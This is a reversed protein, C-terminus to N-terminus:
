YIYHFFLPYLLFLPTVNIKHKCRKKLRPWNSRQIHWFNFVLKDSQYLDTNIEHLLWCLLKSGLTGTLCNVRKNYGNFLTECRTYSSLFTSHFVFLFILLWVLPELLGISFFRKQWLKKTTRSCNVGFIWCNNRPPFTKVLNSLGELSRLSEVFRIIKGHCYNTSQFDNLLLLGM